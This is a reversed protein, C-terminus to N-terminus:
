RRTPGVPLIGREHRLAACSDGVRRPKLPEDEAHDDGVRDREPQAGVVEAARGVIDQGGEVADEEADEHDLERDPDRGEATARLSAQFTNSKTTM